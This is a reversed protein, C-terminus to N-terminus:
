EPEVTALKSAFGIDLKGNLWSIDIKYHQYRQLSEYILTRINKEDRYNVIAKRPETELLDFFIELVTGTAPKGAIRALVIDDGLLANTLTSKGAGTVGILAIRYSRQYDLAKKARALIDQYGPKDEPYKEFYNELEELREVQKLFREVQEDSADPLGNKIEEQRSMEIEQTLQIDESLTM